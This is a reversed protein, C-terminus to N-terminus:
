ELSAGGLDRRLRRMAALTRSKVTGLPTGTVRAIQTQTMGRFYSLELVSRQEDPLGDIARRVDDRRARMWEEEVVEEIDRPPDATGHVARRREAEERRVTDVARHHV